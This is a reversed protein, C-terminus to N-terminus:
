PLLGRKLLRRMIEKISEKATRIDVFHEVDSYENLLDEQYEEEPTGPEDSVLKGKENWTQNRM